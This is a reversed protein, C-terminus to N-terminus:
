ASHAFRRLKEHHGARHFRRLRRVRDRPPRGRLDRAFRWTLREAKRYRELVEPDEATLDGAHFLHGEVFGREQETLRTRGRLRGVFHLLTVYKTVGAHWELELLSVEAGKRCVRDTFTLLHDVEEVLTVFPGVNSDDLRRRPDSEELRQILSRPLYLAAAWGREGDRERLLLSAGHPGDVREVAERGDLLRERGEEGVVFRGLPLLGSRFDYTSEILRALQDILPRV